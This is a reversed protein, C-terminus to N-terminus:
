LVFDSSAESGDTEQKMQVSRHSDTTGFTRKKKETGGHNIRKQNRCVGRQPCVESVPTIPKPLKARTHGDAHFGHSRSRAFLSFSFAFISFFCRPTRAVRIAPLPLEPQVSFGSSGSGATLSM